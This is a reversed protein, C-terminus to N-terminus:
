LNRDGQILNKISKRKVSSQSIHKNAYWRAYGATYSSQHSQTDLFYSQKTHTFVNPFPLLWPTLAAVSYVCYALFLSPWPSIHLSKCLALSVLVTSYLLVGPQTQHSFFSPHVKLDKLQLGGVISFSPFALNTFPMIYM